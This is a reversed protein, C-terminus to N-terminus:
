SIYLNVVETFINCKSNAQRPVAASTDRGVAVHLLKAISSQDKGRRGHMAKGRALTLFTPRASIQIYWTLEDM